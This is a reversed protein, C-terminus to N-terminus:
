IVYRVGRSRWGDREKERQIKVEATGRGEEKGVKNKKSLRRKQIRKERKAM